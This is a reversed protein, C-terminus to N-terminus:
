TVDMPWLFLWRQRRLPEWMMPNRHVWVCRPSVSRDVPVTRIIGDTNKEHRVDATPNRDSTGIPGDRTPSRLLRVYWAYQAIQHPTIYQHSRYKSVPWPRCWIMCADRICVLKFWLPLCNLGNNDFGLLKYNYSVAGQPRDCPRRM